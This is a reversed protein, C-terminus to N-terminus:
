RSREKSAMQTTQGWKQRTQVYAKLFEAKWSVLFTIKSLNQWLLFHEKIKTRPYLKYNSMLLFPIEDWRMETGLRSPRGPVVSSTAVIGKWGERDEAARLSDEFEMGTWEKVKDESRKKLRGRRKAGKVTGQLITKVMGSSRSIRGYWRLKRKKVMTLLDDHVGVANQIRNRVEENTVHDNYSINLLRRYYCRMEFAQIRREIETTLTWSGCAYLILKDNSTLSINRDRWIIKLRSLATTTQTIRSLIEPKSGENSIIAGLCKFNEVESRKDQDRKPLWKPQKDDSKDQRPRDGNQVKHHNYRSPRGPRWSRIGSRCKRFHWRCLPILRGSVVKM